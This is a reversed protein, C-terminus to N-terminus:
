RRSKARAYNQLIRDWKQALERLGTRNFLEVANDLIKAINEEHRVSKHDIMIKFVIGQFIISYLM